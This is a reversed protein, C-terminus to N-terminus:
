NLFSVRLHIKPPSKDLKTKKPIEPDTAQQRVNLQPFNATM